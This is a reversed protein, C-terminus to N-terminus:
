LWSVLCLLLLILLSFGLLSCYVCSLTDLLFSSVYVMLQPCLQIISGVSFPSICPCHWTGIMNLCASFTLSGLFQIFPSYFDSLTLQLPSPGSLKGKQHLSLKLKVVLHKWLVLGLSPRAGEVCAKCLCTTKSFIVPDASDSRTLSYQLRHLLRASSQACLCLLWSAYQCVMGTARVSVTTTYLGFEPSLHQFCSLM